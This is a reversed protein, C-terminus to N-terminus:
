YSAALIPEALPVNGVCLCNDLAYGIGHGFTPCRGSYATAPLSVRENTGGKQLDWAETSLGLM